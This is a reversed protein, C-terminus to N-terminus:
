DAALLRPSSDVYRTPNHERCSSGICEFQEAMICAYIRIAQDFAELIQDPTRSGDFRQVPANPFRPLVVFEFRPIIGHQDAYAQSYIAPQWVEQDACHQTWGMRSTKFDYITGDSWLDAYGLFPIDMDPHLCTLMREPEGSLNLSQVQDLMDLGRRTLASADLVEIGRHQQDVIAQRWDQLFGLQSDQGRFHAEIGKHVARGFLMEVV